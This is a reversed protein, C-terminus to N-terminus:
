VNICSRIEEIPKHEEFVDKKENLLKLLEPHMDRAEDKTIYGWKTNRLLWTITTQLHKISFAVPDKNEHAPDFIDFRMGLSAFEPWGGIDYQADNVWSHKFTTLLLIYRCMQKLNAFNRKKNKPTIKANKTIPSVAVKYNGNDPHKSTPKNIERDCFWVEDGQAGYPNAKAVLEDSMLKIEEWFEIIEAEHEDFYKDVHKTCIDWFEQQLKAFYHNENMQKRPSWDAWNMAGFSAKAATAVSLKSLASGLPVLAMGGTLLNDAGENISVTGYTHPFLLNFIPNRRVNRMMPVVYQEINLHTGGLHTVVEGFLFYNMRWVRKAKDWNDGDTPKYVVPKGLCANAGRVWAGIRNTIEISEVKLDGTDENYNFFASCNPGWYDGDLEIGDYKFDIYLRGDKHKKFLCPNFGNLALDVFATDCRAHGPNDLSKQKMKCVPPFFAKGVSRFKRKSYEKEWAKHQDQMLHYGEEKDIHLRPTYSIGQPKYEWYKVEIDGFDFQDLTVNNHVEPEYGKVEVERPELDGNKNYKPEKQLVQIKLDPRDFAGAKAPDYTFSFKGDMDTYVGDKTMPDPSSFIGDDDLLRVYMNHLPKIKGGNMEKSFILRGFATRSM